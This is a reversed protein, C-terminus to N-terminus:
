STVLCDIPNKTSSAILTVSLHSLSSLRNNCSSVLQYLSFSLTSPHFTSKTCDFPLEVIRILFHKDFQNESFQNWVPSSHQNADSSQSQSSLSLSLLAVTFPTETTWSNENCCGFHKAWNNTPSRKNKARKRRSRRTRGFRNVNTQTLSSQTPRWQALTLSASWSSEPCHLLTLWSLM